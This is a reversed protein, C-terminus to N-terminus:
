SPQPWRQHPSTSYMLTSNPLPHGVPYRVFYEDGVLWHYLNAFKIDPHIKLGVGGIRGLDSRLCNKIERFVEDVHERQGGVVAVTCGTVVDALQVLRVLKSATTLVLTLRGFQVFRTGVRLTELADAIFQEETARNGGPRDTVVIASRRLGDMLNNARELLLKVVDEEETLSGTATRHGTEELVVIATIGHTSGLEVARRLFETRNDGTLNDRMWLNRGPSWKFEEGRPFGFEECLGDLSVELPKISSEPVHIGGVAVLRGMGDRSAQQRSDDFFFADIEGLSTRSIM